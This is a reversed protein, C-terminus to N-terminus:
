IAVRWPRYPVPGNKGKLGDLLRQIEGVVVDIDFPKTIYTRAGLELARKAVALDSEGTLMVVILNPDIERAAQLVEIGGMEPMSVDLLLLTPRQAKIMLLADHGGAAQSVEAVPDLACLMMQRLDADDDVILIKSPM